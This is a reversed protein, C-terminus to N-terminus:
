LTHKLLKIPMELTSKKKYFEELEKQNLANKKRDKKFNKANANALVKISEVEEDNIAYEILKDIFYTSIKKNRLKEDHVYLLELKIYKENRLRNHVKFFHMSFLIKKTDKDFLCFKVDGDECHYGREGKTNDNNFVEDDFKFDVNYKESLADPLGWNIITERMIENRDDM